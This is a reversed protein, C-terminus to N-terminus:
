GRAYTGVLRGEALIHGKMAEEVQRKTTGPELALKGDLAYVKFFYRHPKGRPPCPGGYGVKGFDNVGQKGGNALTKDSPVGEPLKNTSPPLDFLVWHTWTGRPADPDDCILAFSKTNEPAGSWELAPSVDKGDCTYTQPISSGEKFASSTVQVTSAGQHTDSSTSRAEGCATLLVALLSTRV